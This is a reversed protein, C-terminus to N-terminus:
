GGVLWARVKKSAMSDTVRIDLNINKSQIKIGFGDLNTTVDAYTLEGRDVLTCRDFGSVISGGSLIVIKNSFFLIAKSITNLSLLIEHRLFGFEAALIDLRHPDTVVASLSAM